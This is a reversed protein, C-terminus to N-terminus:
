DEQTSQAAPLNLEPATEVLQSNHKLPVYEPFAPDDTHEGQPWPEFDSAPDLPQVPQM